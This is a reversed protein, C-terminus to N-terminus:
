DLLISLRGGGKKFYSRIVLELVHCNDEQLYELNVFLKTNNTNYVSVGGGFASITVEGWTCFVTQNAGFIKKKEFFIGTDSVRASGFLYENGSKLGVLLETFHRVGVSQWLRELINEYVAKKRTTLTGKNVRNSWVITYETHMTFKQGGQRVGVIADLDWHKGKWDVGEPSIHFVDKFVVGVEATYTISDRFAEENDKLVALASADKSTYEVVRDVEAFVEQLVQTLKTAIDILGFENNLRLLLSRIKEAIEESQDHGKGLSKTSVQLPQAMLDWDRVVKEIKEVLRNLDYETSGSEAISELQDILSLLNDRETALTKQVELEYSDVIDYVLTPAHRAGEDTATDVLATVFKAVDQLSSNKIASWCVKRFYLRRNYIEEEIFSLESIQTFRSIERDENLDSMLKESNISEFAYALQLVATIEGEAILDKKRLIASAIINSRIIPTVNDIQLLTDLAGGLLDLFEKTKKPGIGPLWSVEASLRKRPHTLTARAEAYEDTENLLSQEEALENIRNRDDRLTAKLLYFPNDILDM